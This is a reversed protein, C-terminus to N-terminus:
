AETSRARPRGPTGYGEREGHLDQPHGRYRGGRRSGGRMSEPYAFCRVVNDSSLTLYRTAHGDDRGEDFHSAVKGAAGPNRGPGRRSPAPAPFRRPEMLALAM